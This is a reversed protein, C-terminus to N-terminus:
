RDPHTPPHPPPCPAASAATVGSLSLPFGSAQGQENFTMSFAQPPLELRKGTPANGM